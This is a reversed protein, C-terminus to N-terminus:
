VLNDEIQEEGEDEEDILGIMNLMPEGKLSM